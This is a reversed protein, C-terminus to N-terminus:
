HKAPTTYNSVNTILLLITTLKKWHIKKFAKSYYIITKLAL